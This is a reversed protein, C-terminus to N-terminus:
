HKKIETILNAKNYGNFTNTIEENVRIIITPYMDIPLDEEPKGTKEDEM